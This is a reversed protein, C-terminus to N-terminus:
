GRLKELLLIYSAPTLLPFGSSCLGGVYIEVGLAHLNFALWLAAGFSLNLAAGVNALSGGGMSAHVPSVQELNSGDAYSACLPYDPVLRSKDPLTSAIKACSWVIYYDQDSAAIAVIVM